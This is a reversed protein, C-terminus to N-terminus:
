INEYEKLLSIMKTKEPSDSMNKIRDLFIQYIKDCGEDFKKWEISDSNEKKENLM